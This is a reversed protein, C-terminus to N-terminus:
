VCIQKCADPSTFNRVIKQSVQRRHGGDGDRFDAVAYIEDGENFVGDDENFEGKPVSIERLYELGEPGARLYGEVDVQAGPVFTSPILTADGPFGRDDDGVLHYIMGGQGPGGPYNGDNVHVLFGAADPQQMPFVGKISVRFNNPNKPDEYVYMTAGSQAPAASAPAAGATLGVVAALTAAGGMLAAITKRTNM